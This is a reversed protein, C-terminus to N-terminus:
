VAAQVADRVREYGARLTKLLSRTSTDLEKVTTGVADGVPRLDRELTKFDHELRDLQDRLDARLLHAKLLLEDRIQRLSSVDNMWHARDTM